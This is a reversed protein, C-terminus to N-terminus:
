PWWVDTKVWLWVKMWWRAWLPCSGAHGEFLSCRWGPGGRRCPADTVHELEWVEEDEHEYRTAPNGYMLQSAPSEEPYGDIVASTAGPVRPKNGGWRRHDSRSGPPRVADAPCPKCSGVGWRRVMRDSNWGTFCVRNNLRDAQVQPYWDCYECEGPAHCVRSDCHAQCQLLGSEGLWPPNEEVFNDKM